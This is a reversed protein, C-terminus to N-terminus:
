YPSNILELIGSFKAIDDTTPSRSSEIKAVADQVIQYNPNDPHSFPVLVDTDVLYIM